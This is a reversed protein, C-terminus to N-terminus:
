DYKDFTKVLADIEKQTRKLNGAWASAVRGVKAAAAINFNRGFEFIMGPNWILSSSIIDLMEGSEVDRAFKTTVQVDYWAPLVTYHGEAALAELIFGTRELSDTNGFRPICLLQDSGNNCSNTWEKQNEDFKPLPLMGFNVEAGRLTEVTRIVANFFLGRGSAFLAEPGSVIPNENMFGEIIPSTFDAYMIEYCKIAAEYNRDSAFIMVPIKEDNLEYYKIGAGTYLNGGALSFVLGFRDDELTMKQDGNVDMAAAAAMEALKTLNWKDNRVLEYPNELHLDEILDKNFLMTGTMDRNIISYDGNAYFLRDRIATTELLGHDWWPKDFNLFPVTFLDVILGEKASVGSPIWGVQEMAADFYEDGALIAQRLYYAASGDSLVHEITINYMEDLTRNRYFIADNFVDGNEEEVAIDRPKFTAYEDDAEMGAGNTLIRFNYGNWDYDPLDTPVRVVAPEETTLAETIRATETEATIDTEDCAALTAALTAIATALALIRKISSNM